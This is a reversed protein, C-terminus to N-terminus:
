LNHRAPMYDLCVKHTHSTISADIGVPGPCVNCWRKSAYLIAYLVTTCVQTTRGFRMQSKAHYNLKSYMAILHRNLWAACSEDMDSFVEEFLLRPTCITLSPHVISRHSTQLLSPCLHAHIAYAETGLCQIPTLVLRPGRMGYVLWPGRMGHVPCPGRMGHSTRPWRM